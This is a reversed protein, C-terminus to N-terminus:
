YRVVFHKWSTCLSHFKNPLLRCADLNMHLLMKLSLLTFDSERYLHLGGPAAPEVLIRDCFFQKDQTLCWNIWDSKWCSLDAKNWHHARKLKEVQLLNRLVRLDASKMSNSGQSHQIVFHHQASCDSQLHPSAVVFFVPFVMKMIEHVKQGWSQDICHWFAKSFNLHNKNRSCFFLDNVSTWLCPGNLLHPNLLM